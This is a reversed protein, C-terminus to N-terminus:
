HVPLELHAKPYASGRLAIVTRTRQSRTGLRLAYRYNGPHRIRRAGIVQLAVRLWQAPTPRDQGPPLPGLIRRVVALDVHEPPPAGVAVLREIVGRAGREGGTIKAISRATLVTADPLLILTRPTSRGLAAFNLAQYVIGVHGPKILEHHGHRVRWRPIPDAFTVVGRLGHNQSALRFVASCFFSEGNSPVEDLVVLRNFDLAETYPELTPFVNTLTGRSMPVGLTAVGVLRPQDTGHDILGYRYTTSPLTPAYHHRAIFTRATPEDLEVVHYRDANFGGEHAPRWTTVRDTWRQTLSPM